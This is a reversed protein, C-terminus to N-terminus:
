DDAKQMYFYYTQFDANPDNFISEPMVDNNVMDVYMKARREDKTLPVKTYIQNPTQGNQRLTERWTFIKSIEPIRPDQLIIPLFANLFAKDKESIANIESKTGIKVMPSESTLFQDRKLGLTKYEFNASLLIFKKNASTFNEQYARYWQFRFEKEGWNNIRQKM